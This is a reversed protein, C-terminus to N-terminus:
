YIRWVGPTLLELLHGDPDRFYLSSGGRPWHTKSEIAVGLDSLKAEWEELSEKPISFGMHVPGSGDHPPIFGGQIPVPSTSAGRRFLLLVHTGNVSLSHFRDDGALSEFGFLRKYFSTARELDDVYLATEIIGTLPPM